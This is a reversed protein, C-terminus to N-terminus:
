GHHLEMNFTMKMGDPDEFVYLINAENIVYVAFGEPNISVFRSEVIEASRPLFENPHRGSSFAAIERLDITSLADIRRTTM